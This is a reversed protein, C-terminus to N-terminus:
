APIGRALPVSLNLILISSHKGDHCLQERRKQTSGPTGSSCSVFSIFIPFMVDALLTGWKRQVAAPPSQLRCTSINQGFVADAGQAELWHAKWICSDVVPVRCATGCSTEGPDLRLSWKPPPPARWSPEQKKANERRRIGRSRNREREESVESASRTGTTIRPGPLQCEQRESCLREIESVRQCVSRSRKKGNSTKASENRRTSGRVLNDMWRAQFGSDRVFRLQMWALLCFLKWFARWLRTGGRQRAGEPAPM